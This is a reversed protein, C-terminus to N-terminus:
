LQMGVGRGDSQGAPQSVALQEAALSLHQHDGAHDALRTGALVSEWVEAFGAQCFLIAEEQSHNRLASASAPGAILAKFGFHHKASVALKAVLAGFFRRVSGAM